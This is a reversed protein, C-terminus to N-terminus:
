RFDVAQPLLGFVGFTASVAQRPFCVSFQHFFANHTVWRVACSLKGFTVYKGYDGLTSEAKIHGCKKTVIVEPPDLAELLNKQSM